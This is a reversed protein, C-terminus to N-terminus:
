RSLREPGRGLDRLISQPKDFRVRCPVMGILPGFIREANKVPVDRGSRLNGFCPVSTGTYDRLVLAWAVQIVTAATIETASCFARIKGTDIGPVRVPGIRTCDTTNGISVPFFCPEVGALHQTWFELGSDQPQDRLYTIFDRYAGAPHLNGHYAAQLDELLINTSFGDIISHDIELRFYATKEELESITVHHRLGHEQYVVRGYKKFSRREACLIHKTHSGRLIVHMPRNSGPFNEVLLCRLLAHQKVVALWAERLRM